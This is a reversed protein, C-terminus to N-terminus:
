LGLLQRRFVRQGAYARHREHRARQWTISGPRWGTTSASGTATTASRGGVFDRVCLKTSSLTEFHPAGGHRTTGSSDVIWRCSRKRGGNTGCITVDPHAVWVKRGSEDMTVAFRYEVRGRLPLTLWFCGEGDSHMPSANPDWGNFDGLLHVAPKFPATLFFTVSGPHEFDRFACRRAATGSAGFRPCVDSPRDDIILRLKAGRM